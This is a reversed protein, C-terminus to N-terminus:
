WMCSAAMEFLIEFSLSSVFIVAMEGENRFRRGGLVYSGVIDVCRGGEGGESERDYM